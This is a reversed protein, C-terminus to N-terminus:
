SRGTGYVSGAPLTPRPRGSATVPCPWRRTQFPLPSLRLVYGSKFTGLVRGGLHLTTAAVGINWDEWGGGSDDRREAALILGAPREPIRLLVIDAPTKGEVAQVDGASKLAYERAVDKRSLRYSVYGAQLFSSDKSYAVPIAHTAVFDEAQDMVLSHLKPDFAFVQGPNAGQLERSKQEIQLGQMWFLTYYGAYFAIPVIMVVRPLRGRAADILLGVLVIQGLWGIVAKAGYGQLIAGLHPLFLLGM